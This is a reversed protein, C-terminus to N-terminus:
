TCFGLAVGISNSAGGNYYSGNSSVHRFLITNNATRLGWNTSSSGNVKMKQRMTASNSVTNYIVGQTECSTGGFIERYSPIWVDDSTEMNSVKAGATDYGTSYKTVEIIRSRVNDPILPKVTDKLYSRMETQEWGGITTNTANMRHSTLLLRESVWTIPANGSGDAKEDADMAVIQMNVVGEAGLDIAKYNGISYKTKYSGNDIAAFIQEWTDTIEAYQYPSAFQAYCYTNGQINTPQPNWGSFEWGNTADIPTTGTYTASGGYPVNNVIQLLTSGNYFYVTYYRLSSTFVANVTLPSTVNTYSKDWKSFTYTYQATSAKTPNTPTTASGGRIVWQTNHVTTDVMFRVRYTIDYVAYVTCNSHVNTPLTGFDKFSYGTDETGARTPASIHGAIVPNTASGGEAVVERYLVSNDYDLFRVIYQPAGNAIVVLEPFADNIETLLDSSISPVSVVGTVIANATNGGEADMGICSKLKTITKQLESQSAADWSVNILRVRNLSMAGNVITEVDVNPTNEVRLTTLAGLGEFTLENLNKQDVITFNSITAPLQLTKLHGGRPLEVGSIATGKAYVSELSVCGSLDVSKQTDTGLASCNQIDIEKLLENNGVYLEKLNTNRYGAASSGLKLSQLKTAMSFNAYGVQLGSLDGVDKVRDASYIYVETDNMQDMPNKLTYAINRKGRTTVVYSGYKVTTWIHSYPTVTIDGLAYCRLTIFNSLADGAQYKSDRYKFANFLWWDRQSEKSGQLMSLYNEGYVLYSQLYKVFADENWIAESWVSQHNQFMIKITEYSFIGASRLNRYMTTIEDAFADRVNNWLVSTQGNFVNAGGVQDTDELDYDFVLVGENNIGIATDFDYPLPLWHTGDYTTLFMNKARSDIMLFVETFIKYFLVADKVFYQEFENKFKALRADKDSQSSVADRDTSAVWDTVRKLQTYDITGEPYRAEFDNLWESTTYDSSKFLCRNSTNNLFEWSQAKPYANTFGFVEENSKDNNFNYKGVFSVNGHADQWFVVMPLGDIGQRCRSDSQQPPTKYPCLTEYFDVLKVNNANESSAFDAKLCFTSVGISNSRLQYTPSTTGSQTYVIGKKYKEKFNKVPYGASSTGQVDIEVGEATFSKSPDAPNVYTVKVGSKKDGKYQPLEACEIIMYPLTAPLKSIVVEESDDLVDNRRYADERQALTPRDYIFNDLQESRTLSKNYIRIRYLDIGCSEAGISLGTPEPQSFDDNTPYQSVGCMVGNIYIYVLRNLNRNEVVFCVRVHEDEKFQMSVESQESKLVAYQSGIRFGRGGSFSSFVISDYDQVDRTAFEAEVTFGTTRCDNEFPKFPITMFDNPLFRLVTNGNEDDVWGDAGMWGFGSFSANIDGYSWSNPNEEYNNRGDATFELILSDTIPEIIFASKSVTVTHIVSATGCSIVFKVEGDPYDNVSWSQATRGVTVTSQAYVSGDPNLIKRIVTANETSPDYVMYPIILNEGRVAETVTFPSLVIQNNNSTNIWMMGLTIVNSRVSVGDVTMEAYCKFIHAGHSQEPITFSQSRNNSTVITTGIINDDMVFYIKKEGVGSPTYSFIVNGSYSAMESFTTSMSLSVVSITYTLTKSTDESNTVKIRVTNSGTSLCDTINVLNIGQNINLTAKPVNNVTITGVGYGDDLGDEDVSSYLFELIVDIGDAVTILRSSLLNTLTITYEKSSGGGGSGGFGVFFPQFDEIDEDEHTLHMYGEDDVYGSDFNLGGVEGREGNKIVASTTGNKDRITILAGDELQTVTAEPSVAQVTLEKHEFDIDDLDDSQVDIGVQGSGDSSIDLDVYESVDIDVYGSIDSSANFDVDYDEISNQDM